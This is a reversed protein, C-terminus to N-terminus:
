RTLRSKPMHGFCEVLLPLSLRGHITGEKGKERSLALVFKFTGNSQTELECLERHRPLPNPPPSILFPGSLEAALLSIFAGFSTM